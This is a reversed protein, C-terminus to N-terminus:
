GHHTGVLNMKTEINKLETPFNTDCYVKEVETMKYGNQDFIACMEYITKESFYNFIGVGETYFGNMEFTNSTLILDNMKKSKGVEIFFLLM